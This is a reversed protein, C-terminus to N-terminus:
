PRRSCPEPRRKRKRRGLPWKKKRSEGRGSWLGLWSRWKKPVYIENYPRFAAPGVWLNWDLYEPVPQEAPPFSEPKDFYKGKGFAPGDFWAIVETVNGLIGAEYWEKVLRIGNTAHGQNALQTIVKYRKAAKQLTRLQWVNHALPKEVIVHKGLEMAAMAASFHVHDPTCVMVADIEKHMQDFMVRFDHFRPVNPFSQLSKLTAPGGMDTDCLAVINCLGSSSFQRLDSGGQAGIGVCALNVLENPSVLKKPPVAMGSVSKTIITPFATAVSLTLAKKLFLRRSSEKSKM